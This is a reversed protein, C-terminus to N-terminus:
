RVFSVYAQSAQKHLGEDHMVTNEMRIQLDTAAEEMTTPLRGTRSLSLSDMLKFSNVIQPRFRM